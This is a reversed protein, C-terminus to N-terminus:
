ANESSAFFDKKMFVDENHNCLYRVVDPFKEIYEKIVQVAKDSYNWFRGNM